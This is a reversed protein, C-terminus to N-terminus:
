KYVRNTDSRPYYHDNYEQSGIVFKTEPDIIKKDIMMMRNISDLLELSVINGCDTCMISQRIGKATQIDIILGSTEHNCAYCYFNRLNSM